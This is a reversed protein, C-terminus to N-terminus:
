RLDIKEPNDILFGQHDGISFFFPLTMAKTAELDKLIWIAEIQEQGRYHTIFRLNGVKSKISDIM